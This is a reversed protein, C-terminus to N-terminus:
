NDMAGQAIWDRVLQIEAQTNCVTSVMSNCNPALKAGIPMFDGCAPPDHSIKELLLSNDPDRPVVRM